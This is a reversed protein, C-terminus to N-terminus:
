APKRLGLKRMRGRLTSPNLGLLRAAGQEGEIQWRTADLTRRLHTREVEELPAPPAAPEAGAAPRAIFVDGADLLGGRSM